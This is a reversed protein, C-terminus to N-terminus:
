ELKVEQFLVPTVDAAPLHGNSSLQPKLNQLSRQLRQRKAREEESLVHKLKVNSRKIKENKPSILGNRDRYDTARLGEREGLSMEIYDAKSDDMVPSSCSLQPKVEARYFDSQTEKKAEASENLFINAEKSALSAGTLAQKTEFIREAELIEDAKKVNLMRGVVKTSVDSSAKEIEMKSSVEVKMKSVSPVVHRTKLSGVIEKHVPKKKEVANTYKAQAKRPLHCNIATNDQTTCRLSAQKARQRQLQWQHQQDEEDSSSSLSYVFSFMM